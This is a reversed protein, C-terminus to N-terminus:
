YACKKCPEYVGEVDDYDREVANRGACSASCHYKEGYPTVYVTRGSKRTTTTINETTNEETTYETAVETTLFETTIINEITEETDNQSDIDSSNLVTQENTQEFDNQNNESISGITIVLAFFLVAIGILLINRISVMTKNDDRYGDVYWEYECKKCKAVERYAPIDQPYKENYKELFNLVTKDLINKPIPGKQKEMRFEVKKSNCKVCKTNPYKEKLRKHAIEPSSYKNCINCFDDILKAGCVPCDNEKKAGKFNFFRNM